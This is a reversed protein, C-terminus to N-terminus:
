AADQAAEKTPFNEFRWVLPGPPLASFKAHVLTVCDMNAPRKGPTPSDNCAVAGHEHGDPPGTQAFVRGSAILTLCLCAFLLLSQM